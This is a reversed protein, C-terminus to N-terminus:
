KPVIFNERRWRDSHINYSFSDFLSARGDYFSAVGYGLHRESLRDWQNAYFTADNLPSTEAEEALLLTRTPQENHNQDYATRNRTYSFTAPQIAMSSNPKREQDDSPCLFIDSGALYNETILISTKPVGELNPWGKLLTMNPKKPNQTTLYLMPRCQMNDNDEAWLFHSVTLMKVNNLCSVTRANERARELVPLLLSMLILIVAVVVLLELFTFGRRLRMQYISESLNQFHRVTSKIM